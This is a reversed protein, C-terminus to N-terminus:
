KEESVARSKLRELLRLFEQYENSAAVEDRDPSGTRFASDETQREGDQESVTDTGPAAVVATGSSRAPETLYYRMNRIHLEPYAKRIKRLITEQRLQILQLWGPHDAQIVVMGNRVDVVQSHSAIDAGVLREWSRFFSSFRAATKATEPGFM